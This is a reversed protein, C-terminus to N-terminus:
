TAKKLKQAEVCVAYKPKDDWEIFYTTIGGAEHTFMSGLVTGMTGLPTGDGREFTAKVVRTGNKWCGPAEDTTFVGIYGAHCGFNGFRPPNVDEVSAGEPMRGFVANFGLKIMDQMANDNSPNALVDGFSVAFSIGSLFLAYASERYEAPIQQILDLQNL